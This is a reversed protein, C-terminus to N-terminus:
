RRAKHVMLEQRTGASEVGLPVKTPVVVAVRQWTGEVESRRYNTSARGKQSIVIWVLALTWFDTSGAM